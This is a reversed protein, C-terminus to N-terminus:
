KITVTPGLFKPKKKFLYDMFVKVRALKERMKVKFGLSKGVDEANFGIAFINERSAIYIARQNHFPQSIITLSDQGFVDRARVVSDFTRFGAFDPFIINSDIGRSILDARMQSPEDYDPRGHDGSIILYRIKGAKILKAAADIRNIYFPNISDGSLYKATGLLLGVRNFPISDVNSFLKGKAANSVKRDCIFIVACGVLFLLLFFLLIKKKRM